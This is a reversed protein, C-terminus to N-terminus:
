LRPALDVATRRFDLLRHFTIKDNDHQNKAEEATRSVLLLDDGDVLLSCYNYAQREQPWMALVGAPFWNLADRSYHLMLFRREKGWGRWLNKALGTVQNATMWFLDGKEDHTIHFQNQAGPIPYYHSFTLQLGNGDDALDCIAGIGPM